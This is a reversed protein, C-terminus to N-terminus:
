SAKSCPRKATGPKFSDSDSIPFQGSPMAGDAIVLRATPIQNIARTVTVSIIAVSQPLATGEAFLSVRVVGHAHLEPSDAM